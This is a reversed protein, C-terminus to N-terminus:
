DDKIADFFNLPINVYEIVLKDLKVSALLLSM